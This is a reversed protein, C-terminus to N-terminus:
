ANILGEIENLYMQLAYIEKRDELGMVTADLAMLCCKADSLRENVKSALEYRELRHKQETEMKAEMCEFKLEQRLEEQNMLEEKVRGM